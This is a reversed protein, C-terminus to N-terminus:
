PDERPDDVATVKIPTNFLQKIRRYEKELNSVYVAITDAAADRAACTIQLRVEHDLKPDTLDYIIRHLTKRTNGRLRRRPGPMPVAKLDVM